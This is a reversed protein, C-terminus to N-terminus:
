SIADPVAAGQMRRERLYGTVNAVVAALPVAIFAGAIGALIAGGTLALLVVIPHLKLARGMVMPQLVDGEVQQIVTVVAVVILMDVPGGAALAVLAAVLGALFAGVVPFFGGFFTLLALPLVLPVGIVLLAIGILVADVFAILATGRVYAGLTAWARMGMEQADHRHRADVQETFWGWMERGDKVFFFTLVLTLLLGAVAEVAAVAGALAGQTISGSSERLSQSAQDVYGQIQSKTLDLPGETLWTLVRESGAKVDQGLSELEGAVQPAMLAVAGAVLALAGAVVTWTALLRPWGRQALRHAPPALIASLFLAVIVPLVLLRLRVLAWVSVAVAAVVVLLRWAVAASKDLAPAVRATRPRADVDDRTARM